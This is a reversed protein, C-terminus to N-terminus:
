CLRRNVPELPSFHTTQQKKEKQMQFTSKNTLHKLSPDLMQSLINGNGSINNSVVLSTFKSAKFSNDKLILIGGERGDNTTIGSAYKRKQFSEQSDAHSPLHHESGLVALWALSRM